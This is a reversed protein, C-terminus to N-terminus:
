NRAAAKLENVERRLEEVESMVEQLCKCLLPTIKGYDIGYYQPTGDEGVPTEDFTYTGDFNSRLHPYVKYVQQAIFGTDTLDSDKWRYEKPQLQKINEWQSPLSQIDTKLRMDSLANYSQATVNGTITLSGNIWCNGGFSADSTGFIKDNFISLGRVSMSRNFSVDSLGTIIGGVTLNRNMSVDSLAVTNGRLFTNGSVNLNKNFSSDSLGMFYGGVTLNRNMSVDLLAVTNGRLSTQGLVSMGKNFSVDSNGTIQGAVTLNQNMSVDSFAVTIGRLSTTGLVSMGKNFSVDSLGMFYGGVTLNRNMSVDSLAVTNGQLSTTGLVSMGKNFSVDSLGVMQGGVTLNRNMSVDSLAVTNGRLFTTGLVNLNKNFSSDSNGVISGTANISDLILNGVSMQGVVYLDRGVFADQQVYLHNDINTSGGVDLSYNATPKGISVVGSNPRIATIGYTTSHDMLVTNTTATYLGTATSAYVYTGDKSCAVSIMSMGATDPIVSFSVDYMNSTMPAPDYAYYLGKNTSLYINNGSSDCCIGTISIGTTYVRATGKFALADTVVWKQINDYYLTGFAPNIMYLIRVSNDATHAVCGKQNYFASTDPGPSININGTNAGDYFFIKNNIDGTSTYFYQNNYYLSKLTAYLKGATLRPPTTTFDTSITNFDSTPLLYIASRNNKSPVSVSYALRSGDANIDIDYIITDATGGSYLFVSSFTNGYDTSLYFCGSACMYTAGSSGTGGSMFITRGSLDTCIRFLRASSSDFIKAFSCGYDDSKYVSSINPQPDNDNIYYVYKGDYSTTLHATSMNYPTPVNNQLYGINNLNITKQLFTINPTQINGNVVANTTTLNGNISADTMGQLLGYVTMNNSVYVPGNLSVDEYFTSNSNVMFANGNFSADNFFTSKGKVMFANGNFSADNFFTSKGNVMFTAGNFSADSLATITNNFTSRGDVNLKGNLSADSLTTLIGGVKVTRNFSADSLAVFTGGVKLLKNMSVDGSVNLADKLTTSGLVNLTKNFSADGAVNLVNNLNSVGVVFMNQNFSADSTVTLTNKLTTTGAVNLNRNFSVDGAVNLVNNLNSVGAVILNRNFSADGTLNLVNNLNSVGAVNLNRNFSADGTLNLVNNLNSVGLVNLNRNFSVDNTVSLTNKLTTAGAVNLTQNFSGDGTVNLVSKLNTTGLVSLSQNFSGDGSVILINKVNTIGNLNTTGAVNLTQNFSVDRAFYATGAFSADSTVMLTSNIRTPKQIFVSGGFSADSNVNLGGSRVNVREANLINFSGDESALMGSGTEVWRRSNVTFKSSTKSLKMPYTTALTNTGYLVFSSDTPQTVKLNVTNSASGTKLFTIEAGEIQNSGIIPMNVTIDGTATINYIQYLPMTLTTPNQSDTITFAKQVFTDKIRLDGNLVTNGNLAMNGNFSSDGLVILNKSGSINGLVAINGNFSSDKIVSFLGNRIITDGSVDLFGRLYTQNLRNSMTNQSLWGASM